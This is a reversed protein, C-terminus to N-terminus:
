IIWWYLCTYLESACSHWCLQSFADFANYYMCFKSDQDSIRFFSRQKVYRRLFEQIHMLHLKSCIPYLDRPGNTMIKRRVKEPLCAPLCSFSSPVCLPFYLQQVPPIALKSGSRDSWSKLAEFENPWRNQVVYSENLLTNHARFSHFKLGPEVEDKYVRLVHTAPSVGRSLQLRLGVLEHSLSHAHAYTQALAKWNGVPFSSTVECTWWM